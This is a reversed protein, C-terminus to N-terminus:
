FSLSVRDSWIMPYDVILAVIARVRVSSSTLVIACRTTWIALEFTIVHRRSDRGIELKPARCAEAQRRM